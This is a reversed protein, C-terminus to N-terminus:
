GLVFIMHEKNRYDTVVDSQVGPNRYVCKRVHHPVFSHIGLYGTLWPSTVSENPREVNYGM